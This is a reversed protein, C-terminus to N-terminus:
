ANDEEDEAIEEDPVWLWGQVYAGADAGLSVAADDDIEIEGEREYLAAARVIYEQSQGAEALSEAARKYLETGPKIQDLENEAIRVRTAIVRAPKTTDSMTTNKKTM